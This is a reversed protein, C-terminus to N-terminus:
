FITAFVVQKRVTRMHTERQQSTRFLKKLVWIWFRLVPRLIAVFNRNQCFIHLVFKSLIILLKNWFNDHSLPFFKLLKYSKNFFNIKRSPLLPSLALVGPVSYNLASFNFNIKKSKLLFFSRSWTTFRNCYVFRLFFFFFIYLQM